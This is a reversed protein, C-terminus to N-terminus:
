RRICLWKSKKIDWYCSDLGMKSVYGFSLNPYGDSVLYTVGIDEDINPITLLYSATPKPGAREIKGGSKFLVPLPQGIVTSLDTPPADGRFVGAQITQAVPNLLTIASKGVECTDPRCGLECGSLSFLFIICIVYKLNFRAM